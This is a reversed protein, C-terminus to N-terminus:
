APVKGNVQVIFADYKVKEGATLDAYNKFNREMTGDDLYCTVAREESGSESLAIQLIILAATDPSIFGNYVAKLEDYEVKQGATLSAYTVITTDAETAGSAISRVVYQEEPAHTEALDIQFVINLLEM